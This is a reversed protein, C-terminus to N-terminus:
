FQFQPENTLAKPDLKFKVDGTDLGLDEIVFNLYDQKMFFEKRPYVLLLSTSNTMGYMRPYIFDSLALTDKLPTYLHVKQDMSFALDNVMKGFKSKDRVLGNLLEQKNKSMSLNFYLYSKYKTRLKEIKNSNKEDGLLEQKVLEDTPKYQLIYDVGNVTKQFRYNNDTDSLYDSFDKEDDFKKTCSLSILFILILSFVNNKQM